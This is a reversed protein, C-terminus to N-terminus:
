LERITGQSRIVVRGDMMYLYLTRPKNGGCEEAHVRLNLCALVQKMMAYNREGIRFLDVGSEVVSAGALKAVLRNKQAGMRLVTDLLLPVGMDVYVAPYRREPQTDLRSDPMKCHIM